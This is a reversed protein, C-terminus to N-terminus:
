KKSNENNRLFEQKDQEAKIRMAEDFLEDEDIETPTEPKVVSVSKKVVKKVTPAVTTTETKPLHPTELKEVTSPYTGFKNQIEAVTAAVSTPNNENPFESDSEEHVTVNGSTDEVEWKNSVEEPDIVEIDRTDNADMQNQFDMFSGETDNTLGGITNIKDDEESWPGQEDARELFEQVDPDDLWANEHEEDEQMEVTGRALEDALQNWKEADEHNVSIDMTPKTSKLPTKDLFDDEDLDEVM